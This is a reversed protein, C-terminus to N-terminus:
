EAIVKPNSDAPSPTLPNREVDHLPVADKIFLGKILIHMIVLGLGLHPCSVKPRFALCLSLIVLIDLEALHHILIHHLGILLM